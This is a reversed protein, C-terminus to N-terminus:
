HLTLLFSHEQGMLPLPFALKQILASPKTLFDPLNKYQRYAETHTHTHVCLFERPTSTIFSRIWPIKMNLLCDPSYHTAPGCVLQLFSQILSHTPFLCTCILHPLSYPCPVSDTSALGHGMHAWTLVSASLCVSVVPLVPIVWSPVALFSCHFSCIEKFPSFWPSKSKVSFYSALSEPALFLWSNSSLLPLLWSNM